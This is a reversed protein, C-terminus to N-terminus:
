IQLNPLEVETKYGPITTPNYDGFIYASNLINNASPPYAPDGWQNQSWKAMQDVTAADKIGPTMTQPNAISTNEEIFGCGSSAKGKGPAYAAFLAKTRTNMWQGPTNGIKWPGSGLGMWGLYSPITGLAANIYIASQYYGNIHLPDYYNINNSIYVKMNKLSVADSYHSSDGAYYKQQVVVLHGANVTDINITGMFQKDPDQGTSTVNTDEGVWNQNM